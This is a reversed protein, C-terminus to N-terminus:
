GRKRALENRMVELSSQAIGSFDTAVDDSLKAISVTELLKEAEAVEGHDLLCKARSCKMVERVSLPMREAAREMLDMLQVLPLRCVDQSAEDESIPAISQYIASAGFIVDMFEFRDAYYE